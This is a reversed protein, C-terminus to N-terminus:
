THQASKLEEESSSSSFLSSDNFRVLDHRTLRPLFFDTWFSDKGSGFRKEQKLACRKSFLRTFFDLEGYLRFFNHPERCEKPEGQMDSGNVCCVVCSDDLLLQTESNHEMSMRKKRMCDYDKRILILKSNGPWYQLKIHQQYAPLLLKVLEGVSFVTKVRLPLWKKNSYYYVKM